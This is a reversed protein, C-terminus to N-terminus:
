TSLTLIETFSSSSPPTIQCLPGRMGSARSNFILHIATRQLQHRHLAMPLYQLPGPLIQLPCFSQRPRGASQPPRSTPHASLEYCPFRSLVTGRAVIPLQLLAPMYPCYGVRIQSLSCSLSLYFRVSARSFIFLFSKSKLLINNNLSFCARIWACSPSRMIRGLQVSSRSAPCSLCSQHQSPRHTQSPTSTVVSATDWTSPFTYTQEHPPM